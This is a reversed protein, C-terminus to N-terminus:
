SNVTKQNEIAWRVQVLVLVPRQLLCIKEWFVDTNGGGDGGSGDDDETNSYVDHDRDHGWGYVSGEDESNSFWLGGGGGTSSTSSSSSSSNNRRRGQRTRARKYRANLLIQPELRFQECLPLDVKSISCAISVCFRPIAFVSIRLLFCYCPQLPAYFHPFSLLRKKHTRAFIRIKAHRVHKALEQRCPTGVCRAYQVVASAQGLLLPTLVPTTTM